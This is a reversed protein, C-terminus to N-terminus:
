SVLNKKTQKQKTFSLCVAPITPSIVQAVISAERDFCSRADLLYNFLSQFADLGINLEM